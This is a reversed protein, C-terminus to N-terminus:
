SQKDSSEQENAPLADDNCSANQETQQKALQKALREQRVTPVLADFDFFVIALIAMIVGVVLCSDAFNFIGFFGRVLVFDRVGGSFFGNQAFVVRDIANGITGGVILAFAIQGWVSRTRSRWLLYCFLPLGVVTVVFFLVNQGQLMGGTSGTNITWHLMVFNGLVPIEQGITFNCAKGVFYKSLQDLLVSLAIVSLYIAFFISTKLTKKTM